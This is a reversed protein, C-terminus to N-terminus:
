HVLLCMLLKRVNPFVLQRDRSISVLVHSFLWQFYGGPDSLESSSTVSHESWRCQHLRFGEGLHYQQVWLVIVPASFHDEKISPAFQPKSLHDGLTEPSTREKLFDVPCAGLWQIHQAFNSPQIRSQLGMSQLGGPEETWPIRWALISSHTAM